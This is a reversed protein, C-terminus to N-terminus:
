RRLDMSFREFVCWFCRLVSSKLGKRPSIRGVDARHRAGFGDFQVRANTVMSLLVTLTAGVLPLLVPPLGSAGLVGVADRSRAVIKKYGYAVCGTVM